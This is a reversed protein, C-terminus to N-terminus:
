NEGLAICVFFDDAKQSLLDSKNIGYKHAINEM